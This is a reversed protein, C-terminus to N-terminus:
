PRCHTYANGDGDAGEIQALTVAHIGAVLAPM